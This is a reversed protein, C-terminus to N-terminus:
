TKSLLRKAEALQPADFGEPLDACFDRLPQLGREPQGISSAAKAIDIAAKLQFLAAKQQKAIDVAMQLSTMAEEQNHSDLRLLYLGQLRYLEPVCFGIGPETVSDLAWRLVTLADSVKGFKARAEALLAAYYRFLPGIAVARAYEAEMLELGADSDQGVARAWGSLILAHARQPPFNYKDALEIARQAMRELTEHDGAVQLMIAANQLAHALSHPHKLAEALSLSQDVSRKAQELIGSLSSSLAQICHACVGPDHGGFVPGMWSHRAPDYREVGERSDNFATGVDGRFFATSWRCHIAELLLDSDTAHQGLRVLEEARDRAKTLNRGVIASFWLGWTAKFVGTEDGLMTGM